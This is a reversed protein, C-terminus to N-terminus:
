NMHSSGTTVTTVHFPMVTSVGIGDGDENIILNKSYDPYVGSTTTM